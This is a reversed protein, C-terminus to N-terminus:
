NCQCVDTKSVGADGTRQASLFKERVSRGARDIFSEDPFQQFNTRTRASAAAEVAPFPQPSFFAALQRSGIYSRASIVIKPRKGVGKWGSAPWDLM